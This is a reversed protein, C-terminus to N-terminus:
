TLHAAALYDHSQMEELRSKTRVFEQELRRGAYLGALKADSSLLLKV